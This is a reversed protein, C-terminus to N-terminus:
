SLVSAVADSAIQEVEVETLPAISPVAIVHHSGQLAMLGEGDAALAYRISESPRRLRLVGTPRPVAVYTTRAREQKAKIINALALILAASLKAPDDSGQDKLKTAVADVVKKHEEPTVTAVDGLIIDVGAGKIEKIRNSFAGCLLLVLGALLGAGLATDSPQSTAITTDTNDEAKCRTTAEAGAPTRPPRLGLLGAISEVVNAPCDAAQVTRVGNHAHTATGSTRKPLPSTTGDSSHHNATATTTSTREYWDPRTAASLTVGILSLGILFLLTRVCFIARLATGIGHGISGGISGLDSVIGGVLRPNTPRESAHCSSFVAEPGQMDRAAIEALQLWTHSPADVMQPVISGDSVGQGNLNVLVVKIVFSRLFEPAHELDHAVV